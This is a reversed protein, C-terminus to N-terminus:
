MRCNGFDCTFYIGEAGYSPDVSSVKQAETDGKVARHCHQLYRYPVHTSTRIFRLHDLTLLLCGACSIQGFQFLRIVLVWVIKLM